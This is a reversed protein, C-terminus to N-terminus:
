RAAIASVVRRPVPNAASGVHQRPNTCRHSTSIEPAKPGTYSASRHRPAAPEGRCHRHTTPSRRDRVVVACSGSAVGRGRTTIAHPSQASFRPHEGVSVATPATPSTTGTSTSIAPQRGVGAAMMAASRRLGPIVAAGVAPPDDSPPRQRPRRPATPMNPGHRLIRRNAAEVTRRVRTSRTPRIKM